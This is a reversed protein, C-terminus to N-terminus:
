VESSALPMAETIPPASGAAKGEIIQWVLFELLLRSDKWSSKIGLDAQRVHRLAQLLERHSYKGRALPAIEQTSFPNRSWGGYHASSHGYNSTGGSRLAQRFLDGISWLILMESQKSALLARLNDYASPLRREAIARLLKGIEHEERFVVLLDLDARELRKTQPKAALMKGIETRMWLLNVGAQSGSGREGGSEFRGAIEQALEPTIDVGAEGLHHKLWAAAERRALPLMEVLETNKELFQVFRRRRDPETAAFVVTAFPSPRAFYEELAAYDDDTAHKFDEPDSFILFSHGGLMPMQAAAQLEQHLHKPQFEIEALCWE